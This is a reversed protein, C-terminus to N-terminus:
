TWSRSSIWERLARSVAEPQEVMVLHGAGDILDLRAGPIRASLFEAYKVPTMRDDKGCIVLTPVAIGAVRAMVDFENCAAFDDHVVQPSCELLQKESLQMLRADAHAAFEAETVLHATTAFDQLTGELIAPLVRLRAGTGVLGLGLVREPNDLALTQSIAGGM